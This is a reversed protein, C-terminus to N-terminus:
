QAAAMAQTLQGMAAALADTTPNAYLVSNLNNIASALASYAYHDPSLGALQSQAQGLLRQADPLLQNDVIGQQYSGSGSGHVPCTMSGLLLSNATSDNTLRLTAYQGLYDSLVSDYQTGIFGYLPHGLPLIVVGRSSVTPCYASALMGSTACISLTYHMQCEVTPVSDAPWYDTVTGYDMADSRCAETALQGSVKCTTVRVLGYDSASGEM